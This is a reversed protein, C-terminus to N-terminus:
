RAKYRKLRALKSETLQLGRKATRDGKNAEYHSKLKAHKKELQIKEESETKIGKERLVEQIKKGIVAKTGPIGYTDRLVLGIKASPMGQKGLDAIIEEVDEPKMKLWYPKEAKPAHSGAKGRGKGYLTAM